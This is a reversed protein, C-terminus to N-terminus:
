ETSLWTSLSIVTVFCCCYVGRISSHPNRISLGRVCEEIAERRDVEARKLDASRMASGRGGKVWYSILVDDRSDLLRVM